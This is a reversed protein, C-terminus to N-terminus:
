GVIIYLVLPDPIGIADYQAQTLRQIFEVGGGNQIFQGKYAFIDTLPIDDGSLIEGAVQLDGTIEVDELFESPGDVSLESDIEFSTSVATVGPM